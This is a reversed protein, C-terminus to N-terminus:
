TTAVTLAGPANQFIRTSRLLFKCTDPPFTIILYQQVARQSVELTHQCSSVAVIQQAAKTDSSTAALSVSSVQVANGELSGDAQM